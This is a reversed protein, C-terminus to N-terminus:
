DRVKSLFWTIWSSSRSVPLGRADAVYGHVTSKVHSQVVEHAELHSKPLFVRSSGPSDLAAVVPPLFM